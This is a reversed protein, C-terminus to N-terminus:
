ASLLEFLSEDTIGEQFQQRLWLLLQRRHLRQVERRTEGITVSRQWQKQLRDREEDLFAYALLDALTVQQLPKRVERYFRLMDAAYARQTKESKGHLWTELFTHNHELASQMKFTIPTLDSRRAYLILSTNNM